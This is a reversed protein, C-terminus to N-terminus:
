SPQDREIRIKKLEHTEYDNVLFCQKNGKKVRVKKGLPLMILIARLGTGEDKAIIDTYSHIESIFNGYALLLIKTEGPINKCLLATYVGKVNEYRISIDMIQGWHEDIKEVHPPDKFDLSVRPSDSYAGVPLFWGSEDRQVLLGEYYKGAGEEPPVAFSYSKM